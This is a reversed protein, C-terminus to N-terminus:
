DEPVGAPADSGNTCLTVSSAVPLLVQAEHLAYEGGGLVVVPKKRYFFADCIACYSVGKGELERLGPIPLSQRAAGTALIISRTEIKETTTEVVFHTLTDDMGIWVVEAEKFLVGLRRAGAIGRSALEAGSVPEPFGYYNEILEAKELAGTGKSLVEVSLGARRAYLSASVGAPGSGIIIVDTM